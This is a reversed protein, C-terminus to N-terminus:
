VRGVSTFTTRARVLYATAFVFFYFVCCLSLGDQISSDAVCKSQLAGEGEDIETSGAGDGMNTKETEKAYASAAKKTPNKFPPPPGTVMLVPAVRAAKEMWENGIHALNALSDEVEIQVPLREKERLLQKVTRLHPKQQLVAKARGEWAVVENIM